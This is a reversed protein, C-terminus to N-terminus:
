RSSREGAREDVLHAHQDIRSTESAVLVWATTVALVVVVYLSVVLSIDHRDPMAVCIIPALAQGFIGAIHFGKPTGGSRIKTPFRRVVFAAQSGCVAAHYLLAIVV